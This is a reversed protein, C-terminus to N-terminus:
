LCGLSRQIPTHEAENLGHFAERIWQYNQESMGLSAYDEIYAIFGGNFTGLTDRLRRAYAFIEDRTGSMARRQHDVSCCFCIRGGFAKALREVGLLDPQLLEIVDVGIDILDDIIAFVDGCSHFWVKKGARRIRAFQEAYRPRFVKRWLDLAIMLGQQTGWDDGFAVCDIPLRVAQDILGNEFDFVLDLVREVRSPEAYLDLMFNDFGRLFTAQNFGSIGVCFRVFKGDWRAIQESIGDFRGPEYPDPPTYGEIRPWDALPHAHPQGMTDDLAAWVYGWESEGPERPSFTASPGFGVGVIDSYEFDRNCYLMPTREPDTREIARYVLEKCTMTIM